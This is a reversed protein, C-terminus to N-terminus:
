IQTIAVSFIATLFGFLSSYSLINAKLFFEGNTEQMEFILLVSISLASSKSM